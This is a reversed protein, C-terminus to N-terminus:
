PVTDASSSIVTRPKSLVCSGDSAFRILVAFIQSFSRYNSAVLRVAGAVDEAPVDAIHTEQDGEGFLRWHTWPPEVSPLRREWKARLRALPLGPSGALMSVMEDTDWRAAGIHQSIVDGGKVIFTAPISRTEFIPPTDDVLVYIPIKAPKRSAFAKVKELPETTVCAFAVNAGALRDMLREISPLEAVCPACWTAWFNLFLTQERFASAEVVENELTRLRMRYDWGRLPRPRAPQLGSPMRGRILRLGFWIVVGLVALTLLVGLAVGILLDNRV